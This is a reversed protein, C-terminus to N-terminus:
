ARRFALTGNTGGFGFSNSLALGIKMERAVNPVFDLDCQPDQEHLNITPPAVQHHVALVSYVAEVGGAAGLLHGTMSKTSSVAVKYAHDGLARKLAIQEAVDGLPTSTGHANIYDVEDANASANRLANVMCRSAGEGDECPATIHHADGSMGYGALECYIKAGRAKAHEYEELVLVGAGEGMVFGDRGVDWPRSASAPDDNRTSLARAAAFGAIGLPCIAAEAGGAIMVDADGYEIIRGSEGICHTATTCATVMALNPGKFGFQISLNGSIMNIISGPIFFPSVKRPGGELLVNHTDEILPLGGIGAGINVGIRTPDTLPTDLGADRVAEIGAALGYHIFTDMRRVEKASIFRTPDFGKVEGAIQCAMASADFRSIRTIGSRGALMSDLNEAVTNGIPSVIGIGTVVVRRRAM